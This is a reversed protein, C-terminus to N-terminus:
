AASPATPARFLRVDGSGTRAKVTIARGPSTSRDEIPLESQVRGSGTTVQLRASLGEPLGITVRGSGAALDIDGYGVGISADGSGSRSRVSGRAIDIDLDGSGFGAQLDGCVEGFHADGAGSRVTASGTVTSVRSNASGYRLRLDGDVTDVDIDASGTSVEAGGVTGVVTIDASGTSLKVATRTPVVIEADVADKDRGWGGILDALGGGGQRPVQVVLTPGRLEVVSRGLVDSRPNRPTLRVTAEALDDQAIVTLSGYGLRCQLNIPKSTPFSTYEDAM